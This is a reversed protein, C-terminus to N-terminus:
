SMTNKVYTWSLTESLAFTVTLNASNVRLPILVHPITPGPICAKEEERENREREKEDREAKERESLIRRDGELREIKADKESLKSELEVKAAQLSTM